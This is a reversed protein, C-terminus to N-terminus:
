GVQRRNLNAKLGDLVWQGVENGDGAGLTVVVDGPQINDLLYAAAPEREGIHRASRHPMMAVVMASDVGLTDTERSRYIDLVVVEDADAFAHAFESMLLKTRSFTHPQWVAWLKRGGYQQRLAALITSIETPHHAYDDIIEVGDVTGVIQLRRGVGAFGTLAESCEHFPIEAHLGAALAALANLVNHKGPVRLRVLGLSQGDRLVLFDSGGLGNVQFNVAQLTGAGSVEFGYALTAVGLAEAEALLSKTLLDDGCGIFLGNEPVLGIFRKFADIYLAETPFIDPHDHELNTVIATQPKLGLFMHDYEDAEVIFHRGNGSRGHGTMGYLEGGVIITPDQGTAMFIQALMGTTSTKGHTGAVAIGDYDAMMHGLFDSRKLVPTGAARAAVLEPNTAPIASSIVVWDAGAIHDAHHGQYVAAGEALLTATAANVQMDSGSVTVGRGLLVHAIASMGAGGIGVIHIHMEPRIIWRDDELREAMPTATVFLARQM